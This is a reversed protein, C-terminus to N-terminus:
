AALQTPEGAHQSRSFEGPVEPASVCCALDFTIRICCNSERTLTSQNPVCVCPSVCMEAAHPFTWQARHDQNLKSSENLSL